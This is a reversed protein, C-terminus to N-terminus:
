WCFSSIFFDSYKCPRGVRKDKDARWKYIIDRDLYICIDGRKVLAENYESWNVVKYRHKRLAKGKRGGKKM